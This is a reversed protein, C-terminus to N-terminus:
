TSLEADIPNQSFMYLTRIKGEKDKIQFERLIGRRCFKDVEAQEAPSLPLNNLQKFGLALARAMVKQTRALRFYFSIAYLILLVLLVPLVWQLWQWM